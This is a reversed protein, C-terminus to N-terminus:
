SASPPWSVQSGQLLQKAKELLDAAEQLTSQQRKVEDFITSIEVLMSQKQKEQKQVVVDMKTRARKPEHKQVAIPETIEAGRKSAIRILTATNSQVRRADHERESLLGGAQISGFLWTPLVYHIGGHQQLEHTLWQPDFTSVIRQWNSAIVHTCCKSMTALVQGGRCTLHRKLTEQQNTNFGELVIFAHVGEFLSPHFIKAQPMRGTRRVRCFRNLRDYLNTRTRFWVCLFGCALLDCM